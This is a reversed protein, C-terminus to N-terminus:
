RPSDTSNHHMKFASNLYTITIPALLVPTRQSLLPQYPLTASDFTEQGRSSNEVLGVISRSDKPESTYLSPSSFRFDM